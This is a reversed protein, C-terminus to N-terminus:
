TKNEVFFDTYKESLTKKLIKCLTDIRENVNGIENRLTIIEKDIASPDDKLSNVNDKTIGFKKKWRLLLSHDIGLSSAVHSLPKGSRLLEQVSSYKFDDSYHQRLKKM